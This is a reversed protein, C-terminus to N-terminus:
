GMARALSKVGGRFSQQLARRSKVVVKWWGQWLSKLRGESVARSRHEAREVRKRGGRSHASTGRWAGDTGPM